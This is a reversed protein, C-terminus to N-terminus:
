NPDDKLKEFIDMINKFVTVANKQKDLNNFVDKYKVSQIDDKLKPHNTLVPCNLLHEETEGTNKDKCLSCWMSNKHMSSFNAKINLMKSSLKFLMKKQSTSM